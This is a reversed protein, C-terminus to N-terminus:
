REFKEISLFNYLFLFDFNKKRRFCVICVYDIDQQTVPKSAQLPPAQLPPAAAVSRQM